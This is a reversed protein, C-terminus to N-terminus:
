LCILNQAAEEEMRGEDERGFKSLLTFRWVSRLSRAGLEGPISLFNWNAM